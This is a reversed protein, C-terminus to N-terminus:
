SRSSAVIPPKAFGQIYARVTVVTDFDPGRVLDKEALLLVDILLGHTLDCPKSYYAKLVEPFTERVLPDIAENTMANMWAQIM